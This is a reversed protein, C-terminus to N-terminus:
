AAFIDRATIAIVGDGTVEDRAAVAFRLDEPAQLGHKVLENMEDPVQPCEPAEGIRVLARGLERPDESEDRGRPAHLDCGVLDHDRTALDLELSM